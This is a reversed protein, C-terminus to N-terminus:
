IFCVGPIEGGKKTHDQDVVSVETYYVKREKADELETSTVALETTKWDSTMPDQVLTTLTTSASDGLHFDRSAKLLSQPSAAVLFSYGDGSNSLGFVLKQSGSFVISPTKWANVVYQGDPLLTFSQTPIDNAATNAM